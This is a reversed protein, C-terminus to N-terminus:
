VLGLDWSLWERVTEPGRQFLRSVLMIEITGKLKLSALSDVQADPGLDIRLSVKGTGQPRVQIRAWTQAGKAKQRHRQLM